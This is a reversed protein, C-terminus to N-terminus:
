LKRYYDTLHDEVVFSGDNIEDLRGNLQQLLSLMIHKQSREKEENFWCPQDHSDFEYYGNYLDAIKKNIERIKVDNDIITIGTLPKGTDVNSIWIPGQLYDLQLEIKKM